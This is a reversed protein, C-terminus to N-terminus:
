TEYFFNFNKGTFNTEAKAMEKIETPLWLKNRGRHAEQEMQKNYASPQALRMHQSLSQKKIWIKGCLQCSIDPKPGDCYRRQHQKLGAMSNYSKGCYSNFTNLMKIDTIESNQARPSLMSPSQGM